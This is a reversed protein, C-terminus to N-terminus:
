LEFISTVKTDVYKMDNVTGGSFHLFYNNLFTTTVCKSLLSPNLNFGIKRLARSMLSYKYNLFPYQLQKIHPWTMNFKPSLWFELNRNLIEYSLPRMEYNWEPSGKDEYHHYVYELIARHYQPSLVMVGTQAVSEFSGELGFNNHYATPTLNNIYKIGHKSWFSYLRERVLRNDDKNPIAYEDVVGIKEQPINNTLDPSNPNILIDSDIWVVQDYKQIDTDSLILCKQWAPSRSQAKASDDLPKTFVVLEFEYKEAYQSWLNRCFKNFMLEYKKGIALTVLAKKM